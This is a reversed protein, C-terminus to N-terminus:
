KTVFKNCIKCPKKENADHKGELKEDVKEDVGYYEMEIPNRGVVLPDDYYLENSPNYIPSLQRVISQTNPLFDTESKVARSLKINEPFGFLKQLPDIIKEIESEQNCVINGHYLFRVGM